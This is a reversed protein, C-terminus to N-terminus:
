EYGNLTLLDSIEESDLVEQYAERLQGPDIGELKLIGTPTNLVPLLDTMVSYRNIDSVRFGEACNTLAFNLNQWIGSEKNYFLTQRELTEGGMYSEIDTMATAAFKDHTTYVVVPEGFSALANNLCELYTGLAELSLGDAVNQCLKEYQEQPMYKQASDLVNAPDANIPVPSFVGAIQMILDSFADDTKEGYSARASRYITLFLPYAGFWNASMYETLTRYGKATLPIFTGTGSFFFWITGTNVYDTEIKKLTMSNNFMNAPDVSRMYAEGCFLRKFSRESTNPQDSYGTSFGLANLLALSAEEVNAFPVERPPVFPKFDVHPLECSLYAGTGQHTSDDDLYWFLENSCEYPWPRQIQWTDRYRCLPLLFRLLEKQDQGITICFIRMDYKTDPDLIMAAQNGQAFGPWSKQDFWNLDLATQLSNCQYVEMVEYQSLDLAELADNLAIIQNNVSEPFKEMDMLSVERGNADEQIKFPISRIDAGTADAAVRGLFRTIDSAYLGRLQVAMLTRLAGKPRVAHAHWEEAWDQVNDGKLQCLPTLLAMMSDLYDDVACLSLYTEFDRKFLADVAIAAIEQESYGSWDPKVYRDTQGSPAEEEASEQASLKDSLLSAVLGEKSYASTAAAGYACAGALAAKKVFSRRTVPKM